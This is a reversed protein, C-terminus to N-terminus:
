GETQKLKAAATVCRSFPTGKEGKVHKHSLAKCAQRPSVSDDNAVKAMATVCQSFPTGKEAVHKKSYGQCYVGYAKAKEPLGAGPGPTEPAPTYHPGNAKGHGNGPEAPQTALAMGPAAVLALAGLVTAIKTQLKM